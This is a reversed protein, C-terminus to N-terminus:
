TQISLPSVREEFLIEKKLDELVEQFEKECGPAISIIVIGMVSDLTSLTAIGDCAELIFKIFSISRRDVRFYQLTPKLTEM